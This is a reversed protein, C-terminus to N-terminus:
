VAGTSAGGPIGLEPNKALVKGLAIGYDVKNEEAFAVTAEHLKVSNADVGAPGANVGKSTKAATVQQGTYVAASPVISPLGEMFTVFTDLPTQSKKADGEGFEVVDTTKALEAFVVGLGMKEFAPIWKGATKLKAIADAARGRTKATAAAKQSESFTATHAALEAKFPTVADNVATAVLQKVQDESFTTGTATAPTKGFKAEITAIIRDILNANEQSMDEEQFEVETSDQGEDEFQVPKLGKVEPPQAGLFAVHRLNVIKGAADKYFAASRHKFRGAEVMEDFQPEVQSFRAQLLDGARRIASVWGYAPLDHKPHGVTAPAEHTSPSYNAVVRDVDAETFTGKAGYNGVRFIDVWQNALKSVAQISPSAM